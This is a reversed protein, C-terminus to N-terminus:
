DIRLRLSCIHGRRLSTQVQGSSDLLLGLKVSGNVNVPKVRGGTGTQRPVLGLYTSFERGSRFTTPDGM